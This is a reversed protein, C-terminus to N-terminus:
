FSNLHTDLESSDASNSTDAQDLVAEAEKLDDASKIEPAEPVDAAQASETTEVVKNDQQRNYVTYGAFAVIAVFAAALILEVASFGKQNRLSM